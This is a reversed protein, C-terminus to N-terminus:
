LSSEKLEDMTFLAHLNLGNAKLASTDSNRLIVCLIEEILAGQERLAKASKIVQGGTTIVDEILCIRKGQFSPGEALRCTGYNKAEKRIFVVPVNIQLSLATALPIGGMELAGLLDTNQPILPAMHHSIEKLLEPLAEFQYKDFYENSIQGSRLVFNGKLHSVNFIEQALQKRNM